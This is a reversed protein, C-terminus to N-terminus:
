DELPRWHGEVTVGGKERGKGREARRWSENIKATTCHARSGELLSRLGERGRGKREEEGREEEVTKGGGERQTEEPRTHFLM